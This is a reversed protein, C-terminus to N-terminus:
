IKIRIQLEINSQVNGKIENLGSSIRRQNEYITVGFKAWIDLWNLAKYRIVGYLREGQGYLMQNSLVYLLGNEFQYLRSDYDQTEFVTVRTDITLKKTPTFRLDQFILYGYSFPEGAKKARIVEGRTRLRIKKNVWYQIQARLSGRVKEGLQVQERGLKDIRTYETEKVKNKVQIYFHLDPTFRIEALGFWDYGQTSQDAGFRPAPSLFQDFYASLTIKKNVRH